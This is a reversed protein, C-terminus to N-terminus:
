VFDGTALTDSTIGQLLFISTAESLVNSSANNASDVDIMLTDSGAGDVSITFVKTNTEYTGSAFILANDTLSLEDQGIISLLGMGSNTTDITEDPNGAEFDGYIDLGNDFTISDGAAISGSTAITQATSAISDGLSQVFSDDGLGGFIADAGAGGDIFDAGEGGYISDNGANGFLNDDSTGGNLVNAIEDGILNIDLDGEYTINEIEKLSMEYETPDPSIFDSFIAGYELSVTTQPYMWNETIILTDSDAGGTLTDFFGSIKIIDDGDGLLVQIEGSLVLNVTDDDAGTDIVGGGQHKTVTDTGSGTQILIKTAYSQVNDDGSSLILSLTDAADTVNLNNEVAVELAEFNLINPASFTFNTGSIITANQFSVSIPRSNSTESIFLTDSGSGGDAVHDILSFTIKDSGSGGYLRDSGSGGDIIDDGSDGYIIDDGEAGKLTDNGKGGYIHDNGVGGDIIDNGEYGVVTDDGELATITDNGGFGILRDSLVSGLLQDDANTGCHDSGACKLADQIRGGCASILFIIPALVFKRSRYIMMNEYINETSRVQLFQAM